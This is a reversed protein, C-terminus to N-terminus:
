WEVRCWEVCCLLVDGRNPISTELDQLLQTGHELLDKSRNTFDQIGSKRALNSVTKQNECRLLNHPLWWRVISSFENFSNQNQTQAKWSVRKNNSQLRKSFKKIPSRPTRARLSTGFTSPGLLILTQYTAKNKFNPSFWWFEFSVNEIRVFREKVLFDKIRSDTM